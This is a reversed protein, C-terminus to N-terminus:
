AADLVDSPLKVGVARLKKLTRLSPQGHNGLLKFVTARSVGVYEAFADPRLNLQAMRKKTASSLTSM